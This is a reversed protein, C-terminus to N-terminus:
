RQAAILRPKLPNIMGDNSVTSTSASSTAANFLGCVYIFLM